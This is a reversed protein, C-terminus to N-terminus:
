LKYLYIPFKLCIIEQALLWPTTTLPSLKCGLPRTNSDRRQISSSPIYVIVIFFIFYLYGFPGYKFFLFLIIDLRSVAPVYIDVQAHGGGRELENWRKVLDYFMDRQKAFDQSANGPFNDKSDTDPQYNVTQSFNTSM